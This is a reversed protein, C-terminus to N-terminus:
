YDSCADVLVVPNGLQDGCKARLEQITSNLMDVDLVGGNEECFVQRGLLPPYYDDYLELGRRQEDTLKDIEDKPASFGVIIFSSTSSNSVMGSRIKV